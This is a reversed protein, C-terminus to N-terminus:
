RLYPRALPELIAILCWSAGHHAKRVNAYVQVCRELSGYREILLKEMATRLSRENKLALEGLVKYFYPNLSGFFATGQDVFYPQVYFHKARYAFLKSYFALDRGLHTAKYFKRNMGKYFGRGIAHRRKM